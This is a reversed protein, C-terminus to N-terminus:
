NVSYVRTCGTYELVGQTGKMHEHRRTIDEKYVRYVRTCWCVRTCGAFEQEGRISKYVRYYCQMNKYVRYGFSGM